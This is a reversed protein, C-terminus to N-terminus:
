AAKQINSFATELQKTNHEFGAECEYVLLAIFQLYKVIANVKKSNLNKFAPLNKVDEATIDTSRYFDSGKKNAM